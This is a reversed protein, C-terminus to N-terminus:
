RRTNGSPLDDDNGDDLLSSIIVTSVLSSLLKLIGQNLDSDSNVEIISWVISSSPLIVM